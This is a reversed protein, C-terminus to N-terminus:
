LARGKQDSLLLELIRRASEEWRISPMEKSDIHRNCRFGELWLTIATALVQPEKSNQFYYACDSAVERFVPIDRAIVPLKHHAAEILPIGFGEAESSAILASSSLYLDKLFMDSIGELWFLSTGFLPHNTITDITDPITRRREDPLGKWGESGIIVLNVDVGNEWLIDFAHITQLHGKRPEITGVMLFTEREGLLSMLEEAEDPSGSTPSSAEIDFGLHVPAIQLHKRKKVEPDDSCWQKLEDAVVQSNSILLDSVSVVARLWQLHLPRTGEPFYDPDTVPLLDHVFYSIKVGASVWPLFLGAEIARITEDRYFDSSFFLDGSSVEVPLDEEAEADVTCFSSTFKHAYRFHPTDGEFLYVPKVAVWEPAVAMLGLLQARAVREIGSRMDYRSIASVDYLLQIQKKKGAAAPTRKGKKSQFLWGKIHRSVFSYM